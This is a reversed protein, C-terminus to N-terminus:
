SIFNLLDPWASLVLEGIVFSFFNAIFITLFDQLLVRRDHIEHRFALWFLAMEALPAFTEALLLYLWRSSEAPLVLPLVLIVIPYTCATLWFAAFLRVGISHCRALGFLLIPLEIAVTMAYGVPLFKWLTEPNM